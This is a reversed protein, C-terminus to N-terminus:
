AGYNMTQVHALLWEMLGFGAGNRHDLVQTTCFHAVAAAPAAVPSSLWAVVLGLTMELVLPQHYGSAAASHDNGEASKCPNKQRLPKAPYLYDGQFLMTNVDWSCDVHM